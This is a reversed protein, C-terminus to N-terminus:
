GPRCVLYPPSGKDYHVTLKAYSCSAPHRPYKSIDTMSMELWPIVVPNSPDKFVVVKDFMRMADQTAAVNLDKDYSGNYEYLAVNHHMGSVIGKLHEGVCKTMYNMEMAKDIFGMRGEVYKDFPVFQNEMFIRREYRTLWASYEQDVRSTLGMMHWDAHHFLSALFHVYGDVETSSNSSLATSRIIGSVIRVDEDSCIEPHEGACRLFYEESQSENDDRWPLYVIDHFVAATRLLRREENSIRYKEYYRDIQEMVDEVHEWNHYHRYLPAQNDARYKFLWEDLATDDIKRLM